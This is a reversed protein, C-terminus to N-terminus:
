PLQESTFRYLAKLDGEIRTSAMRGAILEDYRSERISQVVITEVEELPAYPSATRELCQILCLRDEQRLVESIEGPQLGAAWVLVDSHSRGYFAYNAPDVSIEQYCGQLQPYADLADALDGTQLAAQRLLQFDAEMADDAGDTLLFRLVMSDPQRYLADRDAEYRLRIDEDTVQNEPNAPDNWFQQQINLSRYTIYDAATFLPVGTVVAGGELADQRRQNVAEMDRLMAEYGADALYGREVALTGVAYYETLIELARDTVLRCPDGLPTPTHWDTLSIGAEAHDSLIDNRAQYMAQQYEERTIRFGSVELRPFPASFARLCLALAAPILLLWLPLFRRRKRHPHAAM